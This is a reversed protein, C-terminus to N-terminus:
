TEPPSILIMSQDAKRPPRGPRVQLAAALTDNRGKLRELQRSWLSAKWQETRGALGADLRAQTEALEREAWRAYDQQISLQTAGREAEQKLTLM